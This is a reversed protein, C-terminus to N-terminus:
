EFDPIDIKLNNAMFLLNAIERCVGRGATTMSIYDVSKLVEISANPVTASFGAKKLLPIDFLEDGIYIVEKADCNELELIKNFAERKDETGMYLHDVKLYEARLKVGLSNGGTILATKFGMKQLMRFGYGDHADFARNFGVESSSYFIQGNTMIGDIDSIFVKVKKLKESFKEAIVSYDPFDRNFFDADLNLKKYRM